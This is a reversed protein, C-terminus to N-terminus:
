PCAVMQTIWESVIESGLPDVALTGLPPMGPRASMRQHILSAGANGPSIRACLGSDTLSTEWRLDM